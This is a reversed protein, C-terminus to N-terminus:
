PLEGPRPSKLVKGAPSVLFGQAPSSVHWSEAIELGGPGAFLITTGDSQGATLASVARQAAALSWDTSAVTLTADHETAWDGAQKVLERGAPHWLSCFVLLSDGEVAPQWAHAAGDELTYLVLGPAKAGVGLGQQGRGLQQGLVLSQEESGDCDSLTVMAFKPRKIAYLPVSGRSPVGALEFRGAEDTTAKIGSRATRVEVGAAPEGDEDTVTGKVTVTRCAALEVPAPDVDDEVTVQAVEVPIPAFQDNGEFLLMYTGPMVAIRFEGEANADTARRFGDQRYIGVKVDPVPTEDDVAVRGSITRPSTFAFAVEAQEGPSAVTEEQEALGKASAAVHLEGGEALPPYLWTFQRAQGPPHITEERVTEGAADVAALEITADPVGADADLALKVTLRAPKVGEAFAPDLPQKVAEAVAAALQAGHMRDSAFRGDRGIVYSSPIGQVGFASAIEQSKEQSEYIVPFELGQEEMVAQLSEADQDLSVTVLVVDDSDKYEDHVKKVEPMVAMCPGCWTAWFDIAVVKGFHDSLTFPEDRNVPQGTFDPPVGGVLTSAGGAGTTAVQPRAPASMKITVETDGDIKVTASGTAGRTGIGCGSTPEYHEAKFLYSGPRLNTVTFRGKADTRAVEVRQQMDGRRYVTVLCNGLPQDDADVTQGALTDGAPQISDRTVTQGPLVIFEGESGRASTAGDEGPPFFALYSSMSGGGMPNKFSRVRQLRYRGPGLGAFRFRGEADTKVNGGFGFPLDWSNAEGSPAIWTIHVSQDAMPEGAVIVRGTVEGAEPLPLEIPESALVAAADPIFHFGAGKRLLVLDANSGEELSPLEFSGDADTTARVGSFERLAEFGSDFNTYRDMRLGDDKSVLAVMVGALPEGADGSVVHGTVTTVPELTVEVEGAGAGPKPNEVTADRYGPVRLRWSIKATSPEDMRIRVTGDSPDYKADNDYQEVDRWSIRDNGPWQYGKQIAIERPVDGTDSLRVRVVHEVVPQLTVDYHEGGVLPKNRQSVYGQKMIDTEVPTTPMHEFRFTGDAGTHLEREFMRANNWTDTVIWVGKLPKGAPDTVRGTVPLGPELEFDATAAHSLSTTVSQMAPAFDDSFASIMAPGPKVATLRYRGDSDTKTEPNARNSSFRSNGATVTVGAVPRGGDTATVRGTVTAGPELVWEVETAGDKNLPQGFTDKAVFDPHTVTPYVTTESGPIDIIAFCGKADTTISGDGASDSVKVVAGAIPQRSTSLVRGRLVNGGPKLEVAWDPSPPWAIPRRVPEYGAAALTLQDALPNELEISFRGDADTTHMHDDSSVRLRAGAIPQGTSGDVVRGTVPEVAQLPLKVDGSQAKAWDHTEDVPAFGPGDYRVRLRAPAPDPEQAYVSYRVVTVDNDSDLVRGGGAHWTALVNGEADLPQLELTPLRGVDGGHADASDLSLLPEDLGVPRLRAFFNWDGYGQSVKALLTNAGEQLSVKVTDQDLHSSTDPDSRFVQKGNLWLVVGDDHGIALIADQAAESTFETRAYALAYRGAAGDAPLASLFDVWAEHVQHWQYEHGAITVPAGPHLHAEDPVLTRDLENSNRDLKPIPGLVRWDDLMVNWQFTGPRSSDDAAAALGSGVLILSLAFAVVLGCDLRPLTM